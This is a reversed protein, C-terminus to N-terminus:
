LGHHFLTTKPSSPAVTTSHRFQRVRHRPPMLHQPRMQRLELAPQPQGRLQTRAPDRHHGRRRPDRRVRHAPAPLLDIVPTAGAAHEHLLRGVTDSGVKHGAATL